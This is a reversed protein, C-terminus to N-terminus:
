DERLAQVPDIESARWAPVASAVLAVVTLLFAVGVGLMGIHTPTVGHLMGSMLRAFFLSSALGAALGLLALQAGERLVVQMLCSRDAGFAARIGFEHTRQSVGFALVGGVGVAAVSLALLAFAGVLTANLRQPSISESRIQELTAVDVIPQEPDLEHILDTLPGVVADPHATRVFLSGALPVETFPNFAVCPVGEAVGYEKADSVVGVITRYEETLGMFHLTDGRWGIRRGVAKGAPFYRDVLAQNVVVVKAADGTDTSQFTRGEVLTMGLTRFYDGSVIRFDARPPPAGPDTPQGEIEFELAALPALVGTPAEKLPIMSGLAASHVGPLASAREAITGRQAYLEEATQAGYNVPIGLTLVEELAVGGDDKQLNRLTELLLAAGVLLVFSVGVQMVVLLRQTRRGSVGVTSRAGSLWGWGQSVTGPLRPLFAFLSAAAVAVALAVGLVTTDVTVESARASYRSIYAALLEVGSIALLVGLVGGLLSPILNEVLLQRRLVRPRAGLSVRLAWEDHRRIVRALTLNAVNACAIILVFAAVGLLMLLTPRATSALQDRLLLLSVDYGHTADYVEPYAQHLRRSIEEIEVRATELTAEPALRGFVETMRHTRDDVMSASLHHPSAVLNVYLDTREPYPPAPEAVGVIAVSRDNMTVTRGVVDPDGGFQRLWYDYTLVAVAPVSEGDDRSSILRGLRAGLGMVEFYNGTVIGARVLKPEDLGIMNFTMASFETIEEFSGSQERYDRIESVSFLVNDIGALTAAHRLYVLRDDDRYPLPQLWVGHVVSFIATNAGIGLGLTLVFALTYARSKSLFRIGLRVDTIWQWRNWDMGIQLSRLVRRWAPISAEPDIFIPAELAGYARAVRSPTGFRSLAKATAGELAAGDELLEAIVEELHAEAEELIREIGPHSPEVRFQAALEKRLARLFAHLTRSNGLAPSM